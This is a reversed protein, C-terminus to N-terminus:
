VAHLAEFGASKHRRLRRRREIRRRMARTVSAVVQDILARLDEGTKTVVVPEHRPMSIVVRCQKDAGGREGNIDTFSVVVGAVHRSRRGIATNLQATLMARLADDIPVNRSQVHINM